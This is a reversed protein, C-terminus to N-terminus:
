IQQIQPVFHVILWHYHKGSIYLISILPWCSTIKVCWRGTFAEMNNIEEQEITSKPRPERLICLLFDLCRSLRGGIRNRRDKGAKRVLIAQAFGPQFYTYQWSTAMASYICLSPSVLPCSPLTLALMKSCQLCAIQCSFRVLM